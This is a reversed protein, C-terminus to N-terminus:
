MINYSNLKSKINKVDDLTITSKTPDNKLFTLKKRKERPWYGSTVWNSRKRMDDATIAKLCSKIALKM